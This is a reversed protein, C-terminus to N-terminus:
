LGMNSQNYPLQYRLSGHGELQYAWAVANNVVQNTLSNKLRM